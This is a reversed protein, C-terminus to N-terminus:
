HGSSMQCLSLPLTTPFCIHFQKRFSINTTVKARQLTDYSATFLSQHGDLRSSLENEEPEGINRKSVLGIDSLSLLRTVFCSAKM